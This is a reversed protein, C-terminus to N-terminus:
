IIRQNAASYKLFFNLLYFLTEQTIEYRWFLPLIVHKTGYVHTGQDPSFLFIAFLNLLVLIMMFILAGKVERLRIRSVSFLVLGTITMAALLRTDYTLMAATSWLLFFALKATGTLRHVVSQRPLYSLAANKSM